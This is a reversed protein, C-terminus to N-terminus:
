NTTKSSEIAEDTLDITETATASASASVAAEVSAITSATALRSTSLVSLIDPGYGPSGHEALDLGTTEEEETVRLLGAAKLGTFM